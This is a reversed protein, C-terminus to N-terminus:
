KKKTKPKEEPEELEKEPEEPEEASEKKAKSAETLKGEAVLTEIAQAKEKLIEDSLEIANGRLVKLESDFAIDSNGTNIFKKGM